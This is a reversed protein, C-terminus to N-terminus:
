HEHRISALTWQKSISTQLLRSLVKDVKHAAFEPLVCVDVPFVKRCYLMQKALTLPLQFDVFRLINPVDKASPPPPRSVMNGSVRFPTTVSCVTQVLLNKIDM